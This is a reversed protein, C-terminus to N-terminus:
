NWVILSLTSDNLFVFPFFPPLIENNLVARRQQKKIRNSIIRGKLPYHYMSIDAKGVARPGYEKETRRLRITVIKVRFLYALGIM